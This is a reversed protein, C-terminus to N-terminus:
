LFSQLRKWQQKEKNEILDYYVLPAYHSIFTFFYQIILSAYKSYYVLRKERYYCILLWHKLKFIRRRDNIKLQYYREVAKKFIDAHNKRITKQSNSTLQSNGHQIRYVAGFHNAFDGLFKESIRMWLDSDEGNSYNEDFVGVIDFVTRNFLFSNTHVIRTRSVAPNRIDNKFIKQHTWPKFFEQGDEEKVMLIKCFVFGLNPNEEFVKWMKNLHGPLYFDDSDLFSIYPQTAAKIGRNRTSSVGQTKCTLPKKLIRVQDKFAEAITLTQDTSGDDSIIIELDGNYNQDLVSQITKKIFQGRNYTPIIVSIGNKM